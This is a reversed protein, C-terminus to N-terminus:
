SATPQGTTLADLSRVAARLSGPRAKGPHLRGGRRGAPSPARFRPPQRLRAARRRRQNKESRAPADVVDARSAAAEIRDLREPAIQLFLRLMDNMMVSDEAMLRDTLM